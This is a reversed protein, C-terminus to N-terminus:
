AVDAAGMDMEEVDFTFDLSLQIPDNPSRNDNFSDVDIKLRHCDVAIAQRRQQFSIQVFERPATRADDWLAGQEGEEVSLRVPLKARVRRGQPDTFYEERMARSVEEACQRVVLVRHPQWKGNDIAWAAIHKATTPWEEGAARYQRVIDQIQENYTRTRNRPM